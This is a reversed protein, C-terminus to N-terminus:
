FIVLKFDKFRTLFSGAFQEFKVVFVAANLISKM